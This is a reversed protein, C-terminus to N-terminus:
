HILRRVWVDLLSTGPSPRLQGFKTWAWAQYAAQARSNAPAVCAVALAAGCRTLLHDELRTAVQRRRHPPMVMVEAMVFVQGSATLEEVESPLTGSFGQWWTGKRDARFGYACGALPTPGAVSMEFGSRKVHGAFRRLFKQRDGFEEGPVGDYAEVHMDAIAERQTEAQWRTLRRLYMEAM